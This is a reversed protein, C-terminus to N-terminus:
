HSKWGGVERRVVPRLLLLDPLDVPLVRHM